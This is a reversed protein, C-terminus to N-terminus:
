FSQEDRGAALLILQDLATRLHAAAPGSCHGASEARAVLPRLRSSLASFYCESDAIAPAGISARACETLDGPVLRERKSSGFPARCSLLDDAALLYYVAEACLRSAYIPEGRRVRKAGEALAAV